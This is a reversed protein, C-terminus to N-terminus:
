RAWRLCMVSGASTGDYLHVARGHEADVGLHAPQVLHDHVPGPDLERPERRGVNVRQEEVVHHPDLPSPVLVVQEGLLQDVLAHRHVM